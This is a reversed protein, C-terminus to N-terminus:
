TSTSAESSIAGQSQQDMARKLAPLQDRYRNRNGPILLPLTLWMLGHPRIDCTFTVTTGSADPELVYEFVGTVGQRTNRMGFRHPPEYRWVEGELQVAKGMVDMTLLIKSGEQVPGGGVVEMRRVMNRWRSATRFDMMFAFIEEAPRDIHQSFRFSRM